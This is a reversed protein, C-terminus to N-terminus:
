VDRITDLKVMVAIATSLHTEKETSISRSASLINHAVKGLFLNCWGLNLFHIFELNTRSFFSTLLSLGKCFKNHANYHNTDELMKFEFM